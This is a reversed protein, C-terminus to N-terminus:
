SNDIQPRIKTRMSEMTEMMTKMESRIMKMEALNQMIEGQIELNAEYFQRCCCASLSTPASSIPVCVVSRYPLFHKWIIM